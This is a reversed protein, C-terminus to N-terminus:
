HNNLKEQKTKLYDKTKRAAADKKFNSTLAGIRKLM